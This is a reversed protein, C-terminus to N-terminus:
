GHNQFKNKILSAITKENAIMRAVLAQKQQSSIQSLKSIVENRDKDFHKVEKINTTNIDRLRIGNKKMSLVHNYFWKGEIFLM